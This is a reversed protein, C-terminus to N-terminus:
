KPFLAQAEPGDGHLKLSVAEPGSLTAGPVSYLDLTDEVPLPWRRFDISLNSVPQM